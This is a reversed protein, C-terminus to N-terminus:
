TVVLLNSRKKGFKILRNKVSKSFSNQEICLWHLKPASSAWTMLAEGGKDGIECKVLGIETLTSPLAQVLISVGEDRLKSNYSMSFSRLLPGSNDHVTKIAEAILAIENQNLDANRLHLDYNSNNDKLSLLDNAAKECVPNNISRLVNTLYSIKMEPKEEAALLSTFGFVSIITSKFLLRRSPNKM